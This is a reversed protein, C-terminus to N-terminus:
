RIREGFLERGLKFGNFRRNWWRSNKCQCGRQDEVGQIIVEPLNDPDYNRGISNMAIREIQGFDASSEVDTNSLIAEARALDSNRPSLLTGEPPLNPIQEAFLEDESVQVTQVTSYAVKRYNDASQRSMLVVQVDLSGSEEIPISQFEYSYSYNPPSEQLTDMFRNGVPEFFTINGRQVTGMYQPLKKLDISAVTVGNITADLSFDGILHANDKNLGLFSEVSYRYDFDDSYIFDFFNARVALNGQGTKRISQIEVSPSKQSNTGVNFSRVDTRILNQDTDVVEAWVFTQGIYMPKWGISYISNYKNMAEGIITPEGLSPNNEWFTM